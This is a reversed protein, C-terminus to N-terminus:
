YLLVDEREDRSMYGFVLTFAGMALTVEGVLMFALFWFWSGYPNIGPGSKTLVWLALGVLVVGVSIAASSWQRRRRLRSAQDPPLPRRGMAVRHSCEKCAAELSDYASRREYPEGLHGLVFAIM